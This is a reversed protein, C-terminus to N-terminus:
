HSRHAADYSQRAVKATERRIMKTKSISKLRKLRTGDSFDSVPFLNSVSHRGDRFIPRNLKDTIKWNKDDHIGYVASPIQFHPDFQPSSSPRARPNTCSPTAEECLPPEPTQGGSFKTFKIYLILCKLAFQVKNQNYAFQLKLGFQQDCPERFKLLEGYLNLTICQVSFLGCVIRCM